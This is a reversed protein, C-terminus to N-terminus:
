LFLLIIIQYDIEQNLKIITVNNEKQFTKEAKEVMPQSVEMGIFQIHPLQQHIRKIQEGTSCGLDLVPRTTNNKIHYVAIETVLQRMREYSPISRTLMEEFVKTVDENFVWKDMDKSINKDMHKM